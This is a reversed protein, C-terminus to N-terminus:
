DAVYVPALDQFWSKVQTWGRVKPSMARPGTDHVVWVDVANDVLHAHVEGLLADRKKDDFTTMAKDILADVKPDAYHMYNQGKPAVAKSSYVRAFAGFPDATGSSNNIGDTGQCPPSGAGARRCNRIGEWDVTVLELNIGVQKLNQQIYENMPKPLMQGSGSPSVLIKLVLPRSPGYGADALLKKATVPDYKVKFQPKGFWPSSDDMVGEAPEAFGGLLKVIGDRDIALNVAKRVRVDRWAAGERFSMYYPWYHPYINSTVVFGQSKLRPVFDPPPQEIFDVQGSLLASARTTAEPIPLLVLRESKAVRKPDWYSSNRVLELRERPVLKELRFPGTGSPQAAFKNWDRGLKEFQAPSSYYVYSIQYPFTSDPTHTTLEVTYDDIKRWSKLSLIRAAVQATQRPDYQPAEKRFLKDLNWTVADATFDSGDHFKVGKRLKFIWRTQDKPDVSWETALGPVITVPIKADDLKNNILGDYLTIGTMRNGEGGGSPQGTTAPIDSLTMGVRLPKKQALAAGSWALTAIAVVCALSKVKWQKM